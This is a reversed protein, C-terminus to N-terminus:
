APRAPSRSAPRNLDSKRHFRQGRRSARATPPCSRPRGARKFEDDNERFARAIQDSMPRVLYSAISRDGTKVFAEVPMGSVLKLPGLKAARGRFQLFEHPIGVLALVAQEISFRVRLPILCEIFPSNKM